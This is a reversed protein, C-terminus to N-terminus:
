EGDARGEGAAEGGRGLALLAEVVLPFAQKGQQPSFIAAPWVLPLMKPM